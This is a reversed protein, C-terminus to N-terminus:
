LEAIEYVLEVGPASSFLDNDVANRLSDTSRKLYDSASICTITGSDVNCDKRLFTFSHKPLPMDLVDTNHTTFFLQDNSKLCDIMVALFAKEIDSHIFSFKEDCYYFGNEGNRIAAVFDAIAIGAKTGSSLINSDVTKGNQMIVDRIGMRLVFAGEVGEIREVREISPDLAKLTHELIQVYREVNTDPVRYRDYADSPYEFRWSLGRIGELEEVFNREKGPAKNELRRCCSEYSDKSGIETQSVRVHIDGSNYKEGAKADIKVAIRYLINENAVFDMSFKAEEEPDMIAEVLRDFQKMDMFNFVIMLMQGFSTKGTANAGMLINVKKYRFNPHGELFEDQIASNVIKKPYSLNMHFNKFAFFNDISIDMVIMKRVERIREECFVFYDEGKIYM